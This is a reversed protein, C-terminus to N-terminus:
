EAKKEKKKINKKKYFEAVLEYSITIPINLSYNLVWAAGIM